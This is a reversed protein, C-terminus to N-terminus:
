GGAGGGALFAGTAMGAMTGAGSALPHQEAAQKIQERTAEPILDWDNGTLKGALMVPGNAIDYVAKAASGTFAEYPTQKKQAALRKVEDEKAKAETTLEKNIKSADYSTIAQNRNARKRAEELTIGTRDAYEQLLKTLKEDETKKESKALDSKAYENLSSGRLTRDKISSKKQEKDREQEIKRAENRAAIEKKRGERELRTEQRKKGYTNAYSKEEDIASIPDKITTDKKYQKREEATMFKLSPIEGTTESKSKNQKAAWKDYEKQLKQQKTWSDYEQKLQAYQERKERTMAYAQNQAIAEIAQQKISKAM